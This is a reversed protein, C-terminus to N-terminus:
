VVSKRDEYRKFGQAEAALSYTGIPIARIAYQGDQDTAAQFRAGTGENTAVVTISPVVAGSPDTVVGTISATVNQGLAAEPVLCCLILASAALCPKSKM